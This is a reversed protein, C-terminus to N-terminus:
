KGFVQGLVNKLAVDDVRDLSKKASKGIDGERDVLTRQKFTRLADEDVQQGRKRKREQIHELKKAKDVNLMYAKNERNAQAMEAQLREQRSRREYSDMSEKGFQETLHRWKFKPLYKINWMEHYHQSTRKGGIQKMNLFAALSKAKKKDKFEVWGETYNIRRNKSYKRRRATIKQDEPALYLKGLDAYKSLLLRVKKPTMFPPVRSLYCVGSKKNALELEEMEAVTMPKLKTKKRKKKDTDDALPNDNGDEDQQQETMDDSDSGSEDELDQDNDEDDNDEQDDNDDDSSDMSRLKATSFRSDQSDDLQDESGSDNDSDHLGLLDEAKNNSVM